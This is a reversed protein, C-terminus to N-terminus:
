KKFDVLKVNKEKEGLVIYCIYINIKKICM